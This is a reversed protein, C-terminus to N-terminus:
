SATRSYVSRSRVGRIPGNERDNKDFLGVIRRL